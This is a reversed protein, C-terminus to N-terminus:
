EDKESVRLITWWILVPALAPVWLCYRLYAHLPSCVCALMNLMVAAFPVADAFRRKMLLFVGCAALVWFYFGSSNLLHLGPIADICLSLEYMVPAASYISRDVGLQERYLRELWTSETSILLTPDSGEVPSLYGYSKHVAADLYTRPHKLLMQFWAKFYEPLASSDERYGAKVPDSIIPDYDESLKDYILVADIAEREAATVDESHLKVYRATQQFPISLAERVSGKEIGLAPFLVSSILASSVLVAASALALNLRSKGHLCFLMLLLMPLLEYKTNNRLLVAALASLFLLFAKIRSCQKLRLIDLATLMCLLTIVAHLFDKEYRQSFGGWLPLLAYFCLAAFLWGKPCRLRCMLELALAFVAAGLFTQFLIYIFVGFSGRGGLEYCVGMLATSLPPMHTTWPSLGVWESMQCLADLSLTGPYSILLWPLRCLSIAAFAPLFVRRPSSLQAASFSEASAFALELLASFLLWYGCLYLAAMVLQFSSGFILDSTGIYKISFCYLYVASFLASLLSIPLHRKKRRDASFHLLLYVCVLLAFDLGRLDVFSEALRHLLEAAISDYGSWGQVAPQATLATMILASQIALFLKKRISNNM